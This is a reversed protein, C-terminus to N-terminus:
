CSLSSAGLFAVPRSELDYALLNLGWVILQFALMTFPHGMARVVEATEAQCAHTM